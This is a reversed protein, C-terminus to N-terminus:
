GSRLLEFDPTTVEDFGMKNRILFYAAIGLKEARQPGDTPGLVLLATAMADAFAASESVVTVAALKHSIPRGTRADITHSYRQGDHDFYNRYDGSTAVSTDTVRMVSHPTRETTSPKEIAVAWKLGEANHGRVRLEGGIEVLYNQLQYEDLLVALEDVAHGKAWGSLDVYVAGDGKRVAPEDCRTQLKEYGVKNLAALLAEDGPPEFSDGDPGFGWLNVLPGVTIDFAGGSQRSVELASAIAECLEVSTAIWGSAPNANFKSLESDERWTSALKDIGELTEVIRAQLWDKSINDAPDVLLVNFTTGMASGSFEYEPLRADRDCAAVLLTPLLLCIHMLNAM